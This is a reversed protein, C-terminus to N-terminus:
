NRSDSLSIYNRAMKQFCEGKESKQLYSELPNQGHSPLNIRQNTRGPFGLETLDPICDILVYVQTIPYKDGAQTRPVPGPITGWKKHNNQEEIYDRRELIANQLSQDNSCRTWFKDLFHAIQHLYIRPITCNSGESGGVSTNQCVSDRLLQGRICHAQGPCAPEVAEIFDGMLFLVQLGM